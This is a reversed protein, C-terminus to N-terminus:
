VKRKGIAQSCGRSSSATSRGKKTPKIPNDHVKKIHKIMNGKEGFRKSCRTCKYPMLRLHVIKHHDNEKHADTFTKGCGAVRCQYRHDSHQGREHKNRNGTNSFVQDCYACIRSAPILLSEVSIKSSM